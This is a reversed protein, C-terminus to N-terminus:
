TLSPVEHRAEGYVTSDASRCQKRVCKAVRAVEHTGSGTVASNRPVSEASFNAAASSRPAAAYSKSLKGTQCPAASEGAPKHKTKQFPLRYLMGNVGLAVVSSVLAGRREKEHQSPAQLVVVYNRERTAGRNKDSGDTNDGSM